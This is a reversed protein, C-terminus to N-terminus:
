PIGMKKLNNRVNKILHPPDYSVFVKHDNIRMYPTDTSVGLKELMARNNSGQDCLFVKVDLGIELLKEICTVTLMKLTEACIPGSSLEYGVTQKWKKTLGKVMFVGAHNAVYKTDSSMSVTEFGDITDSKVNYVLQEKISMEDFVVTCLKQASSMTTAKIKLGELVAKHFGSTISIKQMPKKLMSVSPLAFSKALLRYCKPSSHFITLAFAKDQETWRYGYRSRGSMKLQTIFFEKVNGSLLDSVSSIANKVNQARTVKKSPTKLHMRLRSIKTRLKQNQKTLTDFDPATFTPTDASTDNTCDNTKHRKAEPATRERPPPRKTRVPLDVKLSQVATPEANWVM